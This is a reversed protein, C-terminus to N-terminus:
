KNKKHKRIVLFSILGVVALLTGGIVLNPLPFSNSNSFQTSYLSNLKELREQNKQLKEQKEASTLNEDVKVADSNSIVQNKLTELLKKTLKNNKKGNTYVVNTEGDSKGNLGFFKDIENNFWPDNLIEQTSLEKFGNKPKNSYFEDKAMSQLKEEQIKVLRKVDFEYRNIDGKKKYYSVNWLINSRLKLVKNALLEADEESQALKIEERWNKWYDSVLYKEWAFAGENGIQRFFNDDQEVFDILKKREELKNIINAM